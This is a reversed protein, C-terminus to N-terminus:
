LLHTSKVKVKLALTAVLRQLLLQHDVCDFVASLDLLSLLMVQNADAATFADSFIRLM